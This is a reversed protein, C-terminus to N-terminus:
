LPKFDAIGTLPDLTIIRREGASPCNLVLTLEDSTGNASFLIRGVEAQRYDTMNIEFLEVGVSDAPLQASFKSAVKHSVVPTDGAAMTPDTVPPTVPDQDSPADAVEIRGDAFIRLEAPSGNMIAQTRAEECGNVIDMVAQTLPARHLAGRIAPFAMTLVIALIAVVVMLEILTFASRIIRGPERNRGGWRRRLCPKLVM